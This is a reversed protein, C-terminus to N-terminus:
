NKQTAKKVPSALFLDNLIKASDALTQETTEAPAHRITPASTTPTLPVNHTVNHRTIDHEESAQWDTDQRKSQTALLSTLQQSATKLADMQRHDIVLTHKGYLAMRKRMDQETPLAGLSFSPTKAPQAAEDNANDISDGASILSPKNPALPPSVGSSPATDSNATDLTSSELMADFQAFEGDQGIQRAADILKQRNLSENATAHIPTLLTAVTMAAVTYSSLTYRSLPKM